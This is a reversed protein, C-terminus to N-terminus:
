LDNGGDDDFVMKTTTLSDQFILIKIVVFLKPLFYIKYSLGLKM